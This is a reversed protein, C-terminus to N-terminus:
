AVIHDKTDGKKAETAKKKCGGGWSGLRFLCQKGNRCGGLNDDSASFERAKFVVCAESRSTTM